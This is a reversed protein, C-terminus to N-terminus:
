SHSASNNKHLISTNLRGATRVSGSRAAYAGTQVGLLEKARTVTSTVVLRPRSVTRDLAERSGILVARRRAALGVPRWQM